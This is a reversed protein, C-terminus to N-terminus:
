FYVKKEQNEDDGWHPKGGKALTRVMDILKTM